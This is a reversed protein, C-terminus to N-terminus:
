PGVVLEQSGVKLVRNDQDFFVVVTLFKEFIGKKEIQKTTGVLAGTSNDPPRVIKTIMSDQWFKEKPFYRFDIKWCRLLEEAEKRPLGAALKKQVLNELASVTMRDETLCEANVSASFLVLVIGMIFFQRNAM